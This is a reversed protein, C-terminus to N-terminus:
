SVLSSDEQIEMAPSNKSSLQKLASLLEARYQEAETKTMKMWDNRMDTSYAMNTWHAMLPLKKKGELIIPTMQEETYGKIKGWWWSLISHFLRIKWYDNLVFLLAEKVSFYPEICLSRLTDASSSLESAADREIWLQTLREITYPKVGRLSVNKKTSPINVITPIDFAIEASEIRANANVQKM